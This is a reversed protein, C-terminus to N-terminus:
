QPTSSALSQLIRLREEQTASDAPVTEKALSQLTKLRKAQTAADAPPTSSALNTLIQLKEAETLSPSVQPSANNKQGTITLFAVIMAVIIVVVVGAVLAINKKSKGASAETYEYEM